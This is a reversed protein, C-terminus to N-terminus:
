LYIKIKGMGGTCIMCLTMSSIQVPYKMQLSKYKHENCEDRDSLFLKGPILVSHADQSEDFHTFDLIKIINRM